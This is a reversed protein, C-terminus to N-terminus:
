AAGGKSSLKSPDFYLVQQRAQKDARWGQPVRVFQSRTWTAPDAGVSVAHRFFRRIKSEDGGACEWWAHLSKGGSRLVMVLPAFDRLHWIIAAQEDATGSDFETVLYYRPGTNDLSHMSRKGKKTIGHTATMPSPVIFETTGLKSCLLRELPRTMFIGSSEGVCLLCDAPFLQQMFWKMPHLDGDTWMPSLVSLLHETMPTESIIRARERVNVPPWKPKSGSPRISATHHVKEGSKSLRVPKKKLEASANVADLIERSDVPRGCRAVAAALVKAIEDASLHGHMQLSMTFLWQHVGSGAKPPTTVKAALWKPLRRILSHTMSKPTAFWGVFQYSDWLDGFWCPRKTRPTARNKKSPRIFPM